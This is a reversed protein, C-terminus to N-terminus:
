NNEPSSSRRGIDFRDLSLGCNQRIGHRLDFVQYEIFHEGDYHPKHYSSKVGPGGLAVEWIEYEKRSVTFRTSEPLEVRDSVARVQAEKKGSAGRGAEKKRARDEYRQEAERPLAHWRKPKRVPAGEDLLTMMGLHIPEGDYEDEDSDLDSDDEEDEEDPLIPPRPRARPASPARRPPGTSPANSPTGDADVEELRPLDLSDVDSSEADSDEWSRLVADEEDYETYLAEVLQLPTSGLTSKVKRSFLDWIRTLHDEGFPRDLFTQILADSICDNFCRKLKRQLPRFGDLLKSTKAKSRDFRPRHAELVTERLRLVDRYEPVILQDFLSFKFQSEPIRRRRDVEGLVNLTAWTGNSSSDLPDLLATYRLLAEDSIRDLDLGDVAEEPRYGYSGRVMAKFDEHVVRVCLDLVEAVRAINAEYDEMLPVSGDKGVEKSLGPEYLTNICGDLDDFLTAAKPEQLDDTAYEVSELVLGVVREPMETIASTREQAGNQLSHMERSIKQRDFPKRGELSRCKYDRLHVYQRVAEGGKEYLSALYILRAARLAVIYRVRQREILALGVDAPCAQEAAMLAEVAAREDPSTPMPLISGYPLGYPDDTLIMYAPESSSLSLNAAEDALASADDQLLYDRTEPLDLCFAFTDPSREARLSILDLITSEEALRAFYLEPYEEINDDEPLALTAEASIGLRDYTPFSPWGEILSEKREKWLTALANHASYITHLKDALPSSRSAIPIVDIDDSTKDLVAERPHLGPPVRPRPTAYLDDDVKESAVELKALLTRIRAPQFSGEDSAESLAERWEEILQHTIRLLALELEYTSHSKSSILSIACQSDLEAKLYDRLRTHARARGCFNLAKSTPNDVGKLLKLARSFRQVALDPAGREFVMQGEQYNEMHTQATPIMWSAFSTRQM